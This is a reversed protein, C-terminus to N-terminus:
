APIARIAPAPAGLARAFDAANAPAHVGSMGALRGLEAWDFPRSRNAAEVVRCAVVNAYRARHAFVRRFYESIGAQDFTEGHYPESVALGLGYDTLAQDHSGALRLEFSPKWGFCVSPAVVYTAATLRSLDLHLHHPEGDIVLDRLGAFEGAYRRDTLRARGRPMLEMISGDAWRGCILTVAPDTLWDRLIADLADLVGPCPSIRPLM